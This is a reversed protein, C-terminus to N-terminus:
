LNSRRLVTIIKGIIENKAVSGYYRSDESGKRQDCLIFYENESLEVPYEVFGEYRPTSVYVNPEIMVNGNIVLTEDDTIEVKDGPVAVIRGVYKKNNKRVVVIDQAHFERSLRYYLLMDNAKINPSMDSNPAQTLGLVFGFMLWMVTVVILANLLFRQVPTMPSRSKKGPSAKHQSTSSSSGPEKEKMQTDSSASKM